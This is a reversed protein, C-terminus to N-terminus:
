SHESMHTECSNCPTGAVDIKVIRDKQLELVYRDTERKCLPCLYSDCRSGPVIRHPVSHILNTM